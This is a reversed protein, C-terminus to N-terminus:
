QSDAYKYGAQYNSFVNNYYSNKNLQYSSWSLLTNTRWTENLQQEFRGYLSLFREDLFGGYENFQLCPLIITLMVRKVTRAV